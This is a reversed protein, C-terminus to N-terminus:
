EGPKIGALASAKACAYAGTTTHGYWKSAPLHSRRATWNVWVVQDDVCAAQAKDEAVYLQPLMQPRFVKTHPTEAALVHGFVFFTAAACLGASIRGYLM